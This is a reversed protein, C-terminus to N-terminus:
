REAMTLLQGMPRAYRLWPKRRQMNEIAMTKLSSRAVTAM